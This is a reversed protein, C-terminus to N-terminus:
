KGITALQILNEETAEARNLITVLEGEKMVAIRDAILLLEQLEGSILIVSKGSSTLKKLITYIEAKAGVDVGHTPEDVIYIQLNTNLWKAIVVKQQNGGSLKRVAKNVTSTRINLKGIYKKALLSNDNRRYWGKFLQTSIINESISKDMFLGLAKRDEPLYAIGNLIADSPHKHSIKSDNLYIEGSQVKDAGFIAKAMETRGAGVLGAFGLIEGKYLEFSLNKFRKGTLEKIRLVIEENADSKYKQDLLERGVMMNIIENIPTNQADVTNQYKGDKLISVKDAIQRIESMRHSIYIICVGEHKLQKIINFLTKIEEETISASPEDLILLEPKSALAKAIEIMQKSAPSLQKVLLDPSMKKSLNLRDLLHKTNEYLQTYNITGWKTLPKNNPYINEAITLTDILSREQYVISIGINSAHLVDKILTPKGKWRLTGSDPQLNGAIINMLTSKGAGNEGCLAHVEGAYFEMSINELAKVSPFSKTINQLSLM